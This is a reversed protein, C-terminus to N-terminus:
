HVQLVKHVSPVRQDLLAQSVRYVRPGAPGQLGDTGPLGQPGSPGPTLQINTLELKLADIAAEISAIRSARDNDKGRLEDIEFKNKDLRSKSDQIDLDHRSSTEKLAEVEVDAASSTDITMAFIFMVATIGRLLHQWHPLQKACNIKISM